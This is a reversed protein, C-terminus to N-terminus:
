AVHPEPTLTPHLNSYHADMAAIPVLSHCTDCAKLNVSDTSAGEATDPVWVNVPVYSM